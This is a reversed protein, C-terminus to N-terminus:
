RAFGILVLIPAILGAVICIWWDRRTFPGFAEDGAAEIERIRRTLEAVRRADPDM